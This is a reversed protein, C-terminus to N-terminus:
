RLQEQHFSNRVRMFIFGPINPHNRITVGPGAATPGSSDAIRLTGDGNTGLVIFEHQTNTGDFYFGVSGVTPQNGSTKEFVSTLYRMQTGLGSDSNALMGATDFGGYGTENGGNLMFGNGPLNVKTVGAAYMVMNVFLACDVKGSSLNPTGNKNITNWAQTPGYEEKTLYQLGGPKTYDYINALTEATKAIFADRAAGDEFTMSTSVNRMERLIRENRQVINEGPRQSTDINRFAADIKQQDVASVRQETLAQIGKYTWYAPSQYLALQVVRSMVGPQQQAAPTQGQELRQQAAMIARQADAYDQLPKVNYGQQRLGAIYNDTTARDTPGWFKSNIDRRMFSDIIDQSLTTGINTPPNSPSPFTGVENMLPFKILQGPEIHNPDTINNFKAIQDYTFNAGEHSENYEKVIQWLAKGDTVPVINGPIPNTDSMVDGNGYENEALYIMNSATNSPGGGFLGAIANWAGNFVSALTKGFPIKGLLFDGWGMKGDIVDLLGGTLYNAGKKLLDELVLAIGQFVQAVSNTTGFDLAGKAAASAALDGMSGPKISNSLSFALVALSAFNGMGELGTYALNKYGSLNEGEWQQVIYESLTGGIIPAAGFISRILAADKETGSTHGIVHSGDSDWKEQSNLYGGILGGFKLKNALEEKDQQTYHFDTEGTQTNADIASSILGQDVAGLIGKVAGMWQANWLNGNKYGNEEGMAVNYRANAYMNLPNYQDAMIGLPCIPLACTQVGTM